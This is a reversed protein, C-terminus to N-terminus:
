CSEREQELSREWMNEFREHWDSETDEWRRKQKRYSKGGKENLKQREPRSTSRSSTMSSDGQDSQVKSNQNSESSNSSESFMATSEIQMKSPDVNDRQGIITDLYDYYPFGQKIKKFGEEGTRQVRIKLNKFEYEVNQLRKKVQPLTRVSEIFREKYKNYIERWIRGHEKTLVKKLQEYNPGWAQLLEETKERNWDSNKQNNSIKQTSATAKQTKKSTAAQGTVMPSESEDHGSLVPPCQIPRFSYVANPLDSGIPQFSSTAPLPVYRM